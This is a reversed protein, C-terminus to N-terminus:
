LVPTISLILHLYPPSRHHVKDLRDKQDVSGLPRIFCYWVFKLQPEFLRALIVFISLCCLLPIPRFLQPADLPLM